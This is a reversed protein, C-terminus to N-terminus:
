KTEKPDFTFGVGWERLELASASATSRSTGYLFPYETKVNWEATPKMAFKGTRGLEMGDMYAVIFLLRTVSKPKPDVKLGAIADLHTNSQPFVCVDRPPMKIRWHEEFDAVEQPRFRAAKLIESMKEIAVNREACFGREAQFPTDTSRLDYYLYSYTTGDVSLHGNKQIKAVWGADYAPASALWTTEHKQELELHIAIELGEKGSVYLNPKAIGVNGTGPFYGRHLGYHAWPGPYFFQPYLAGYHGWWPRWSPMIYNPYGGGGGACPCGVCQCRAWMASQEPGWSNAPKRKRNHPKLEISVSKDKSVNVLERSVCNEPSSTALTYKGPLVEFSFTGGAPLSLQQILMNEQSLWVMFTNSSCAADPKIVGRVFLRESAQVSQVPLLSFVFGAIASSIVSKLYSM